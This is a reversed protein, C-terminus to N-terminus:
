LSIQIIEIVPPQSLCQVKLISETKKNKIEDLIIDCDPMMKVDDLNVPYHYFQDDKEVYSIFKHDTVSRM